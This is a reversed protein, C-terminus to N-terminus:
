AQPRLFSRFLNGGFARRSNRLMFLLILPLFPREPTNLLCFQRRVTPLLLYNLFKPFKKFNTFFFTHKVRNKVRATVRGTFMKQGMPRGPGFGNVRNAWGAGVRPLLFVWRFFGNFFVGSFFTRAMARGMIENKMRGPSHGPVCGSNFFFFGLIIDAWRPMKQVPRAVPRVAPDAPWGSHHRWRTTV